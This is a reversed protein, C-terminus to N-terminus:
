CLVSENPFSFNNEWYKKFCLPFSLMLNQEEPAFAGNKASSAVITM